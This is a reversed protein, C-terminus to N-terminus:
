WIFLSTILKVAIFLYIFVIRQIEEWKKDTPAASEPPKLYHTRWINTSTLGFM